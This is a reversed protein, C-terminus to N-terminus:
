YDSVALIYPFFPHFIVIFPTLIMLIVISYFIIFLMKFYYFCCFRNKKIFRFKNDSFKKINLFISIFIMFFMAFVLFLQILFFICNNIQFYDEKRRYFIKCRDTRNIDMHGNYYDKFCYKCESHECNLCKLFYTNTKSFLADKNCKSCFIDKNKNYKFLIKNNNVDIVNNKSYLKMKEYYIDTKLKNSKNNKNKENKELLYYHEESIFYKTLIKPFLKKCFLFPCHLETEGNEIQEEFYNKACKKCIYHIGCESVFFKFATYKNGCISCIKQFQNM